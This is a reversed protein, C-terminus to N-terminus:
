LKDGKLEKYITKFMHEYYEQLPKNNFHQSSFNFLKNINEEEGIQNDYYVIYENNDIWQYTGTVKKSLNDFFLVPTGTIASLIMGHLRDTVVFDAKQFKHIAYDFCRKRQSFTVYKSRVTSYIETKYGKAKIIDKINKVTQEDLVREKDERICVIAKRKRKITGSYSLGLVMDPSLIVKFNNNAYPSLLRYSTNDRTYFFLNMCRIENIFKQLYVENKFFVTQPFFVFRNCQFTRLVDYVFDQEEQWVDGVYGGGTFLLLSEETINEIVLQKNANWLERSVDILNYGKIYKRWFQHESIAIAQDGINWYMPSGFLFAKQPNAEIQNIFIKKLKDTRIRSKAKNIIKKIM